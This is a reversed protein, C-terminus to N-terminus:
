LTSRAPLGNADEDQQKSQSEGTAHSELSVAQGAAKGAFEEFQAYDNLAAQSLEYLQHLLDEADRFQIRLEGAQFSTTSRLRDVGAAQAGREVPIRVRRAALIKRSEEITQEIRATRRIEREVDPTREMAELWRRLDERSVVYAGGVRQAGIWHMLSNSSRKSLGFLESVMERDLVPAPFHDEM